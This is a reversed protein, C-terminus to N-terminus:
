RRGRILKKPVPVSKKGKRGMLEERLVLVSAASEKLEALYAPPINELVPVRRGGDLEVLWSFSDAKKDYSLINRGSLFTSSSPGTEEKLLKRILQSPTTNLRKCYNAVLTYEEIPLKAGVTRYDM